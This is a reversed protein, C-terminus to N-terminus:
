QATAKDRADILAKRGDKLLGEISGRAADVREALNSTAGDVQERVERLRSRLQDVLATVHDNTNMAALHAQVELDEIRGYWRDLQAEMLQKRLEAEKTELREIQAELKAIREESTM